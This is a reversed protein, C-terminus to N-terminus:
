RPAKNGELATKGIFATKDRSLALDGNTPPLELVTVVAGLDIAANRAAELNQKNTDSSTLITVAEGEKLKSLKLVDRWTQLLHVDSIAM